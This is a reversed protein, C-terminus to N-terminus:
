KRSMKGKGGVVVVKGEKEIKREIEVLLFVSSFLLHTSGLLSFVYLAPGVRSRGPSVPASKINWHIPMISYM